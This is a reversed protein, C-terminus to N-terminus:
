AVIIAVVGPVMAGDCLVTAQGKNLFRIVAIRVIWVALYAAVPAVKASVDVICFIRYLIFEILINVIICAIAHRKNLRQMFFGPISYVVQVLVCGDGIVAAYKVELEICVAVHGVVPYPGIGPVTFVPQDLDRRQVLGIPGYLERKAIIVHAASDPLLGQCM